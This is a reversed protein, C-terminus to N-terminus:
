VNVARPPSPTTRGSPDSMQGLWSRGWFPAPPRRSAPPVTSAMGGLKQRASSGCSRSEHNAGRPVTDSGMQYRNIRYSEIAIPGERRDFTGRPPYPDMRAASPLHPTDLWSQRTVRWSPALSLVIRRLSLATM